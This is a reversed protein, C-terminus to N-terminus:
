VTLPRVVAQVLLIVSRNCRMMITPYYSSGGRINPMWLSVKLVKVKMFTDFSM